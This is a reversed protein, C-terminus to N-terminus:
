PEKIIYESTCDWSDWPSNNNCYIIQKGYVTGKTSLIVEAVNEFNEMFKYQEIYKQYQRKIFPTTKHQYKTDIIFTWSEKKVPNYVRIQIEPNRSNRYFIFCFIEKFTIILDLLEKHSFISDSKRYPM